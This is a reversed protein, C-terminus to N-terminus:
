RNGPIARPLQRKSDQYYYTHFTSQCNIPQWTTPYTSPLPGGGRLWGRVETPHPLFTRDDTGMEYTALTRIATCQHLVLVKGAVGM